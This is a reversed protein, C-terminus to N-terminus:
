FTSTFVFFLLFRAQIFMTFCFHSNKFEVKITTGLFSEVRYLNPSLINGRLAIALRRPLELSIFRFHFVAFDLTYRMVALLFNPVNNGGRTLIRLITRSLSVMAM